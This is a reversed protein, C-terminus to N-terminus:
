GFIDAAIVHDFRQDLVFIQIQGCEVFNMGLRYFLGGFLVCVGLFMDMSLMMAM